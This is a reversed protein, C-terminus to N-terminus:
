KAKKEIWQEALFLARTGMHGAIAVGAATLYENVGYSKCIWFTVLGVFSSVLMEGILESINM